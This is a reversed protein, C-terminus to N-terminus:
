ERVRVGVYAARGPEGYGFVEQYREDALNEIRATLSVHDNIRYSGALDATVFGPRTIRSFGDLSTDPQSAEGRLTLAAGWPGQDWFLAASGSHEPVRLLALGTALDKADTLTYSLKLRLADTLRGDAEAELGTSRTRAINIYRGASFSIQDRVDLRYGTLAATLRGDNSTWGLRADYGEAREPRLPVPPAFCFDCVAESITPVKFGQGASLTLEFGAGLKAAGAIRGTTRSEFRDPDDWRLSGTLTLADTLNHRVVGFVSTTSLDLSPRGSLDAATTQREAGGVVATADDPGGKEATWRWVQREARFASPFDSINRRHIDYGSFSLKQTLGFADLTARAFGSWVHSNNRDPTDALTFNPPPFGDIAIDSTTYRLRGDLQLADTLAARGGLNATATAFPDTETGAAAKSIGDTRLGSVSASLAYRDTALGAGVLGRVTGFSGGELEARAGTEQRTTFAVVGGIADSGWLSGQPGNLVEIRELDSTTLQSADFTGNPDAPDGAPVGDILVLTKDPSAGRIRISALGGFAGNQTVGVGPITSLVDTVFPTQRAELEAQDIVRAGTVLDLRTPLRTATVVLETTTPATEQALAETALCAPVACLAATALLTSRM